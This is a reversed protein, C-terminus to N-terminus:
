VLEHAVIRKASKDAIARYIVAGIDNHYLWLSNAQGDFNPEGGMCVSPRYGSGLGIGYIQPLCTGDALLLRCDDSVADRDADAALALRRGEADFVPLTAARYGLCSVVLAAEDIANRLKESSFDQLAAVTVRSEPTVNPRGTIQRWLDRGHGRLGGLRNVRGTRPCIDGPKVQYHDEAAAAQDPYFIPPQRRQVIVIQGASLRAAAPLRLLAQAAAYASHSGGVILIKRRRSAGLIANAEALGDRTLLLDSTLFCHLACHGLHLGPLLARQRWSQRGGLAVVATRARLRERRGDARSVEMAVTGDRQIHIARGETNLHLASAPKDAIAAAITSGLRRMYRDVLELPPFSMRYRAMESTVPDARLERLNGAALPAELCELYSGGLSDSHIAYRGLSGGLREEREVVAVGQDLWQTLRDEQAAWILPGLGGPGGGVIITSLLTM